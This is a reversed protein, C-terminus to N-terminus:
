MRENPGYQCKLICVWKFRWDIQKIFEPRIITLIKFKLKIKEETESVVCKLSHHTSQPVTIYICPFGCQNWKIIEGFHVIDCILCELHNTRTMQERPRTYACSYIRHHTQPTQYVKDYKSARSKIAPSVRLRDARLILDPNRCVGNTLWVARSMMWLNASVVGCDACRCVTKYTVSDLNAQRKTGASIHHM